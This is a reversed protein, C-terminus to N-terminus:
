RYKIGEVFLGISKTHVYVLGSLFLNYNRMGKLFKEMQSNKLIKEVDGNPPGSCESITNFMLGSRFM